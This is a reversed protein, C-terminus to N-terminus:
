RGRLHDLRGLNDIWFSCSPCAEDGDPEFMLHYILLQSRGEFLDILGVKGHPGDFSYDKAIEVMPLRRRAANVADRLRTLEKEQALLERRAALWQERTTVEPDPM